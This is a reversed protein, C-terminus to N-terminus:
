ASVTTLEIVEASKQSAGHENSTLEEKARASNSVISRALRLLTDYGWQNMAFNAAVCVIRINDKLYGQRNEIRDISPAWPDMTAELPIRRSFPIGSISCRFEGEKMLNYVDSSTIEFPLGRRKATARQRSWVTNAVFMWSSSSDIERERWGSLYETVLEDLATKATKLNDTNTTVRILKDNHRGRIHYYEGRKILYFRGSRYPSDAKRM